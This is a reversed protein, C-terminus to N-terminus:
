APPLARLSYRGLDSVIRFGSSPCATGSARPKGDPNEAHQVRLAHLYGKELIWFPKWFGSFLVTGLREDIGLVPVSVHV